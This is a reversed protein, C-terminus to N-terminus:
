KWLYVRCEYPQLKKPDPNPYNWLALKATDIPFGHPARFRTARKSYSCVVLSKQRTDQRSFM